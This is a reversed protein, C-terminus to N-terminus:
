RLKIYAKNHIATYGVIDSQYRVSVYDFWKVYISSKLSEKCITGVHPRGTEYVILGHNEPWRGLYWVLAVVSFYWVSSKVHNKLFLVLKFINSLPIKRKISIPCNSYKSHSHRPQLINEITRQAWKKERYSHFHAGLGAKKKDTILNTGM